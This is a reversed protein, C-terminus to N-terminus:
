PRAKIPSLDFFCFVGPLHSGPEAGGNGKFYETVSYQNTSVTENRIDTYITPVVRLFYQFMGTAGTPNRENRQEVAGLFTTILLPVWVQSTVYRCGCMYHYAFAGVCTM